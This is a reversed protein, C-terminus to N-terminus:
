FKITTFEKNKGIYTVHQAKGNSHIIVDCNMWSSAGVNYEVRLKTSTGVSLVGDTRSPSHSHGIVMKTSLKKFGAVSGRSGNTSIDGHQALQFGKVKFSDNRGLVKVDKGFSEKIFYAVLGKSAKGSLLIAACSMYMAANHINRKWDNSKIYRDLWDTHNSAVFVLNFQKMGKIWTLMEEIERELSNTGDKHRRFQIIPDKEEHHSISHGNLVDHILTHKPKLKTLLKRQSINVLPCDEGIHIDGLIAAEIEKEETIQGNKVNFFLDTFSGDKLATVQRVFFVDNDKIEVVVFGFTHHFEGQKGAKSDTYNPLTCAGTTFLMKPLYGELAAITTMQVKPHGFIASKLGSIGEMGTLPMKATPQIKIDSLLSLHKHLDHRNADAYPMIVDDWVEYNKDSFVSNPNKYRGLIVHIEAQRFKAYAEINELLPLHVPTNNQAWPIFFCKSHKSHKRKQAEIYQEPLEPAVYNANKGKVLDLDAEKRKKNGRRNDHIDNIIYRAKEFDKYLDPRAELVIKALARDSIPKGKYERCVNEAFIRAESKKTGM